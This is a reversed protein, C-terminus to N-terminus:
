TPHLCIARSNDGVTSHSSPVENLIQYNHHCLAYSMTAIVNLHHQFIQNQIEYLVCLPLLLYPDIENMISLM